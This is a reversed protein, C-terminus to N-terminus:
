LGAHVSGGTGGCLLRTRPSRPSGRPACARRCRREWASSPVSPPHDRDGGFPQPPLSLPPPFADPSHMGQGRTPVSSNSVPPVCTFGCVGVRVTNTISLFWGEFSGPKPTRNHTKPHLVELTIPISNLNKKGGFLLICIYCSTDLKKTGVSTVHCQRGYIDRPSRDHRRPFYSQVRRAGM